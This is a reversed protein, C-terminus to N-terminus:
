NAVRFTYRGAGVQYSTEAGQQQGAPPTKGPGTAVVRKGSPAPVRVVATTGSPITVDM